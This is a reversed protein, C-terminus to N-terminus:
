KTFKLLTRETIVTVKAGERKLLLAKEIKRGHSTYLWDRSALTGIVLFDVNKNVNPSIEGGRLRLMTDVADRDGSVFEGTLCFTKGAIELNDVKDEWVETSSEYSVDGDHSSSGTIQNVTQLLDQREEETIIGDELVNNLRNVVVSAPWTDRLSENADLWSSLADVEQDNLVGDSAVGTLFGVLEEAQGVGTEPAERNLVTDEISTQMDELEQPSIQGDELIDGVLKLIKVVDPDKALYQQSKLWADLFLLEKENLLKDAVIGSLIGKLGYVAREKERSFSFAQSLPKSDLDKSVKM